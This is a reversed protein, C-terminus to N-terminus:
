KLSPFSVSGVNVGTCRSRALVAGGGGRERERERERGGRVGGEGM